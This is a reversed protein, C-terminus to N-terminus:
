KNYNNLYNKDLKQTITTACRKKGMRVASHRGQCLPSLQRMNRALIFGHHSQSIFAQPNLDAETECTPIAIIQEVIEAAAAEFPDDRLKLV